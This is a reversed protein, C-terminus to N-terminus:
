KIKLKDKGIKNGWEVREKKRIKRREKKNKRVPSLSARKEKEKIEKKPGRVTRGVRWGWGEEEEAKRQTKKGKKWRNERSPESGNGGGMQIEFSRGKM